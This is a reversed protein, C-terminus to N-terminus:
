HKLGFADEVLSLTEEISREEDREIVRFGSHVLHDYNEQSNILMLGQRYNEMAAEPDPEEMILRYLFQKERDPREFFRNVSIMPDAVMILVHDPEAIEKLTEMSINTDVFILQNEKVLEDLIRLELIECEKSVGDIWAKYEEPSRRIFDHWDELDKTYCLCPFEEKDLEELLADHYNEECAIGHHKEALLKVMTSKGAYATGNIFYVNEFRKKRDLSETLATYERLYMGRRMEDTDAYSAHASFIAIAEDIPIWRPKTGREIEQETLKMECQGIVKGFFYFNPFKGEEYYEDIELVCPEVEIRYGTEEAVERVCCDEPSENGELGGGPIMWQDVASEYTLLIKDGDLVIGRCSTRTRTYNGFYNEGVIDIRKM